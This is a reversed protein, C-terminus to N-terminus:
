TKTFVGCPWANKTMDTTWDPLRKWGPRTDDFLGLKKLAPIVGLDMQCHPQIGAPGNWCDHFVVLGGPVVLPEVALFDGTACPESHCGDVFVFDLRDGIKDRHDRFAEERTAQIFIAADAVSGGFEIESQELFADFATKAENSPDIAIARWLAVSSELIACVSHFTGCHAVGIEVYAFPQAPKARERLAAEFKEETGELCIGLKM